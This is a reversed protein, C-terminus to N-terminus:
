PGFVLVPSNVATTAGDGLAGRENWGWCYAAGGIALGCTQNSGGRLGTFSASTAVAQPTTAFQTSTGIGLQGEANRGWCYAKGGQAVGCTFGGGLPPGSPQQLTGGGAALSEFSLGGAVAVPEARTTTTGDGLEGSDNAGWCYAQGSAILGCAHGFGGRVTTFHLTTSIPDRIPPTTLGTTYSYTYRPIWCYTIGTADVSCFAEFFAEETDTAAGAVVAVMGTGIRLPVNQSKGKIDYGYPSTEDDYLSRGWCYVDSDATTACSAASATAVSVFKYGGFIQAPTTSFGGTTSRGLAGSDNSGWCYTFGDQAIGCTTSDGASITLFKVDTAVKTPTLKNVATGDGLQGENNLGWCYATGDATLGCSFQAGASMRTFTVIGISSTASKGEVTATIVVSADVAAATVLGSSSVTALGPNSSSWTIARGEIVNGNADRLAATLQKTGGGSMNTSSPTVSVTAVPTASTNVTVTATAQKGESTAVVQTTGVLIGTVAGTQSISAITANTSTWMVQRGTLVNDASDKLVVTFSATAGASVTQNPPSVTISAIPVLSLQLVATGTKGEVEATITANGPAVGTILGAPSISAVGTNSSSWTVTRGTLVGGTADLPLAAAQITEGVRFATRPVTVTVTAVPIDPATSETCSLLSAAVAVRLVLIPFQRRM